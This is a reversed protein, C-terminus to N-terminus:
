KPVRYNVLHELEYVHEQKPIVDFPWEIFISYVAGFSAEGEEFEIWTELDPDQVGARRLDNEMRRRLAETEDRSEVYFGRRGSFASGTEELVRYAEQKQMFLPFFQWGLYVLLAIISVLVVSVINIRRPKKYKVAQAM